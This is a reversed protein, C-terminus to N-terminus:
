DRLKKVKRIRHLYKLHFASILFIQIVECWYLSVAYLISSLLMVYGMWYLRKDKCMIVAGWLFFIIASANHLIRFAKCPFIAIVMLLIAPVVWADVTIMNGSMLLCILVFAWKADTYYYESLSNVELGGFFILILPFLIGIICMFTKLRLKTDSSIM